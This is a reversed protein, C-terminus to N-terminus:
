GKLIDNKTAIPDLPAKYESTIKQHLLENYNDPELQYLNSTKDAEVIIKGGSKLMELDNNMRDQFSDKANRFKVNGIM